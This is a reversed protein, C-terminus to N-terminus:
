RRTSAAGFYFGVIVQTMLVHIPMLVFGYVPVYETVEKSWIWSLLGGYKLQEPIYIAVASFDQVFVSGLFNGATLLMPFLFLSGIVCQVIFRRSWSDGKSNRQSAMETSKLAYMREAHLDEANQKWHTTAAGMFLSFIMPLIDIILSIM